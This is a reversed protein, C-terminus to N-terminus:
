YNNFPNAKFEEKAKRLIEKLKVVHPPCKIRKVNDNDSAHFTERAAWKIAVERQKQSWNKIVLQPITWVDIDTLLLANSTQEVTFTKM